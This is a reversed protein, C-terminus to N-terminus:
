LFITFFMSPFGMLKFVLVYHTMTHKHLHMAFVNMLDKVGCGFLPTYTSGNSTKKVQWPDLFDAFPLFDGVNDLALSQLIHLTSLQLGNFIPKFITGLYKCHCSKRDAEWLLGLCTWHKIQIRHNHKQKTM